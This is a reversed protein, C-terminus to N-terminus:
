RSACVPHDTVKKSKAFRGVNEFRLIRLGQEQLYRTRESEYDERLMSFHRAGVLEKILSCEPCYFDVIKKKPNNFYQSPPRGYLETRPSSPVMRVVGDAGVLNSRSM